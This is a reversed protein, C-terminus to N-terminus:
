NEELEIIEVTCQKDVNRMSNLTQKENTIVDKDYPILLNNYIKNDFKSPRKYYHLLNDKDSIQAKDHWLDMIIDLESSIESKFENVINDDANQNNERFIDISRDIIFNKLDEVGDMNKSFRSALDNAQLGLIHRIMSILVAHMGRERAPESFPTISTPEVFKYFSQHYSFFQEYHSRDRTKTPNYLTFILGENSRGVRSSAQIYESTLKPQGVVVMLNLRDVDVGVSIMNSALLTDVTLNNSTLTNSIEDLTTNIKTSTLRSTLERQENLNRLSQYPHASVRKCLREMNDKIDDNLLTSCKGLERISNFYSVLTWYKDLLNLEVNEMMKLRQLLASMLRVEVTVQTKGSPIVGVYLRGRKKSLPMEKVFFSNSSTLGPPPFQAVNRNYLNKVQNQAKRITATSAIIKPKIGKYSCMADLATEYLGVMTGLPGSILHLEDQIILEPSLNSNDDDLAFLSAVETTWTIMAFKDVTGFLLTPPNNYIEEDVVQIPLMDEFSCDEEPCCLYFKKPRSKIRYGWDGVAKKSTKDWEKVLKTGCWPCKLLQFKNYKSKLNDLEYESNISSRFKINNGTLNNLMEEAEDNFNPTQDSGIWLGISIEKKGLESKNEKRIIECACILISARIFQQAALLRLTYRMIIATGNGNEKNRIRRLFITFASLGLYAETKGGGTPIWLLDVLDRHKSDPNEISSLCTLIYALQFPRWASNDNSYDIYDLNNSGPLRDTIHISHCRQMLIARNMLSFARYVEDNSKILNIGELMRSKTDRCNKIHEYAVDKFVDSLDKSDEELDDIWIDYADVFKYLFYIKKDKSLDSIDSLNKMSLLERSVDSLEDVNFDLKPVEFHPIFETCLKILADNQIDQDIAVGHGTAFTKKNRYLLDLSIEESDLKKFTNVSGATFIDIFELDNNDEALVMLEPQFITNNYKKPGSQSNVLMCTISVFDNSYIRKSLVIDLDKSIPKKIYNKDMDISVILNEHPVRVYGGTKNEDDPCQNALKYLVFKAEANDLLDHKKLLNYVKESTLKQKLYLFSGRLEVYENITNSSYFDDGTYKVHCDTYLANRYTAYNVRFNIVEADKKLFFTMGMSSPLTENSMSIARDLENQTDDSTFVNDEGDYESTNSVDINNNLPYLIGTSYREIPSDTIIEYKINECLDESGPGLLEKRVLDLTKDRLESCNM